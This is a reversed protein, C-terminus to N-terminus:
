SFDHSLIDSLDLSIRSAKIVVIIDSKADIQWPEIYWSYIHDLCKEPGPLTTSEDYVKTTFDLCMSQDDYLVHCNVRECFGFDCCDCRGESDDVNEEQIEQVDLCRRTCVCTQHCACRGTPSISTLSILERPDFDITLYGEYDNIKLV